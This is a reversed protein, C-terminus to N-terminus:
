ERHQIAESLLSEIGLITLFDPHLDAEKLATPHSDTCSVQRIIGSEKLRQVADSPFIGHTTIVSLKTAGADVYAKAAGILSGGTRIMDDYIIVHKGEVHANVATVRTETASVRKKYIFAAPVGMDNALSEVWKARGSDTSGLVFDTGGLAKAGAIVVPKAYIHFVFTNGEFYHPIGEAHLDLLFIRNGYPAKPIASYLRARNKATIVEGRKIRREM